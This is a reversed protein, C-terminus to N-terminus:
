GGIRKYKLNFYRVYSNMLARIFKTMGEKSKQKLLLHFHNPMLCYATLQLEEYLKQKWQIRQGRKRQQPQVEDQALVTLYRKVFGLFVKYDEDDQFIDRGEVGRNYVHYYANEVYIKVSNRSPM